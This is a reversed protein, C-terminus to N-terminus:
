LPSNQSLADCFPDQVYLREKLFFMIVRFMVFLMSNKNSEDIVMSCNHFLNMVDFMERAICASNQSAATAFDM